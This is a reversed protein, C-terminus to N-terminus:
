KIGFSSLGVYIFRLHYVDLEFRVRLSSLQSIAGGSIRAALLARGELRSGHCTPDTLTFFEFSRSFLYEGPGPTTCTTTSSDTYIDVALGPDELSYAGPFKTLFRKPPNM